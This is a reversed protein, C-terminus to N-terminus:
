CLYLPLTLTRKANHNNDHNSIILSVHSWPRIYSRTYICLVYIYIGYIFMIYIYIGYIFGHMHGLWFLKTIWM